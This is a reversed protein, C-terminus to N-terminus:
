NRGGTRSNATERAARPEAAPSANPQLKARVRSLTDQDISSLTTNEGIADVLRALRRRTQRSRPIADEYSLMAEGITRSGLKPGHWRERLIQAELARAEEEALRRNNTSARRQIRIGDVTGSITWAGTSRRKVIKLPMPRKLLLCRQPRDHM